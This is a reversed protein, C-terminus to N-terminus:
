TEDCALPDLAFLRQLVVEPPDTVPTATRVVTEHMPADEGLWAPGLRAGLGDRGPPPVAPRAVTRAWAWGPREYRYRWREGDSTCVLVRTCDRDVRRNLVRAPPEAGGDPHEVVLVRGRRAFTVGGEAVREEEALLREWPASWLAHADGLEGLWRPLRADLAHYAEADDLGHTLARVALDLRVGDDDNWEEFDGSEAAAVLLARHRAALTPFRLTWVALAGDTDFHNNVVPWGAVAPDPADNFRLAIEVSTDARYRDPTANGEWHSLHLRSGEVLGDCCITEPAAVGEFPVFVFGRAPEM